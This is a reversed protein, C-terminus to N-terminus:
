GLVVRNEKLKDAGSINPNTNYSKIAQKVTAKEAATLQRVGVVHTFTCEDATKSCGKMSCDFKCIGPRKKQVRKDLKQEKPLRAYPASVDEVYERKNHGSATAVKQSMLETHEDTEIRKLRRQIWGAEENVRLFQISAELHLTTSAACTWASTLGQLMANFLVVASNIIEFRPFLHSNEMAFRNM